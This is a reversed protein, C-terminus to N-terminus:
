LFGQWPSAPSQELVCIFPVTKVAASQVCVCLLCVVVQREQSGATVHTCLPQKQGREEWGAGWLHGSLSTLLPRETTTDWARPSSQCRKLVPVVSQVVESQRRGQVTPM